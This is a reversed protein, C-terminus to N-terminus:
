SRHGGTSSSTVLPQHSRSPAVTSSALQDPPGPTWARLHQPTPCTTPSLVRAPRRTEACAM